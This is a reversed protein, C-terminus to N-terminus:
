NLWPHQLVDECKLRSASDECVMSIFLEKFEGLIRGEQNQLQAVGPHSGWFMEKKGQRILRYLRNEATAKQFPLQGVVLAFFVVGLAFIDAPGPMYATQKDTHCRHIEPAMYGKPTGKYDTSAKMGGAFGFDSLKPILHGNQGEFMLINDLKIDRHAIGHSHLFSLAKTIDRCLAPIQQYKLEQSNKLSLLSGHSAYELVLINSSQAQRAIETGM